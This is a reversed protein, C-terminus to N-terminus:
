WDSAAMPSTPMRRSTAKWRSGIMYAGGFAQPSAPKDVVYADSPTAYGVRPLGAELSFDFLGPRLLSPLVYYPLTTETTHGAADHLVVRAEGKGTTGPIDTIRYPGAEIAQSYTKLNNVFVDVTSPVAASGSASPLPVTILDPRLGFNRRVQLGGMRIPRTWAFGRTVVDGAMYTTMSAPDSRAFATDLRLADVGNGSPLRLIGVPEVNRCTLLRARRAHSFARDHGPGVRRCQWGRRRVPQLQARRWVRGRGSGAVEGPSADYTATKRLSDGVTLYLSQSREDYRYALGAIGDLVVIGEATSM